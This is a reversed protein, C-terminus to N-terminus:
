RDRSEPRATLCTKGSHTTPNLGDLIFVDFSVCNFNVDYCSRTELRLMSSHSSQVRNPWDLLFFGGLHHSQRCAADELTKDVIDEVLCLQWIFRSALHRNKIATQLATSPTEATALPLWQFLGRFTQTFKIFMRQVLFM